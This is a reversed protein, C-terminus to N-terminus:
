FLEVNDGLPEIKTGQRPASRVIPSDLLATSGSKIAGNSAGLVKHHVDREGEMTYRKMNSELSGASDHGTYDAFPKLVGVIKDMQLVCQELIRLLEPFCDMHQRTQSVTNHLQKTSSDARASSRTFEAHGKTVKSIAVELQLSSDSGDTDDCSLAASSETTASAIKQLTEVIMSVFRSCRDSLRTVEKALISLVHGKEGLQVSNIVANIAQLGIASNVERIEEIYQSLLASTDSAKAAIQCMSNGLDHGNNLLICLQRLAHELEEFHSGSLKSESISTGLCAMSAAISESENDIKDFAARITAYAKETLAIVQRLQATQVCAISHARGPVASECGNRMARAADTWDLNQIDHLAAIVHEVQQHTIDHFQMSM